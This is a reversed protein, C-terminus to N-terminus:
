AAARRLVWTRVTAATVGSLVLVALLVPFAVRGGAPGAPLAQAQGATQVGDSPTSETGAAGFQPSYGPVQGGYRVGPSPAFLGPSAFPLSGYSFLPVRGFNAGFAGTPDFLQTDGTVFGGLPDGIGQPAVAGPQTQQGTQGPQQPQQTGPQQGPKTAGPQQPTLGPIRPLNATAQQSADAISKAGDQVPAAVQNVGQVAVGCGATLAQQVGGVVVGLVPGLLPIQNLAAVVQNAITGGTIYGNGTPIAGIPIAPLAAFAQRFPEALPPGLLPVARVLNVIPDVVAAPSLSVPQGPAGQISTACSGIVIPEAAAATGAGALLASGGVALLVTALAVLRHLRARM